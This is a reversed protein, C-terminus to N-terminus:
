ITLLAQDTRPKSRRELFDTVESYSLNIQAIGNVLLRWCGAQYILQWNAAPDAPSIHHEQHQTSCNFGLSSAKQFLKEPAQAM